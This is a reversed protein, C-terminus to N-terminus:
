KKNNFIINEPYGIWEYFFSEPFYDNLDIINQFKDEMQEAKLMEKIIQKTDYYAHKKRIKGVSKNLCFDYFRKVGLSNDSMMWERFGKTGDMLEMIANSTIVHAWIELLNNTKLNKQAEAIYVILRQILVANRFASIPVFTSLIAEAGARMFLDAANVCGNGRPSVHCASLMVIPPVHFDNTDAIFKENGIILGSINNERDYFGHASIILLDAHNENVVKKFDNINYAEKYLYEFKGGELTNDKISKIIIDSCHRIIKNEDINPVCELFLIKCNNTLDVQRHKCLEFQMNRTLPSLPRSSLEKQCQLTTDSNDIICLGVPFDSFVCIQKAKEIALKFSSNLYQEFNQGIDKLIRHIYNNNPSIDQKCNIELENLKNFMEESCLPIEMLLANKSIARHVGLIRIIKKENDPLISSLNAYKKQNRSIGPFTIVLNIRTNEEASKAALAYKKKFEEENKADNCYILTYHHANQNYLLSFSDEFYNSSNFIKYYINNANGYQRATFLMPLFCLQESNLLYQCELDPVKKMEKITRKEFLLTWHKKLLESSINKASECEIDKNMLYNNKIRDYCSNDCIIIDPQIYNMLNDLQQSPCVIINQPEDYFMDLMRTDCDCVDLENRPLQLCYELIPIAKIIPDDLLHMRNENGDKISKKDFYLVATDNDEIGDLVILYTYPKINM